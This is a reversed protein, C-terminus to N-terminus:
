TECLFASDRSFLMMKEDMRMQKEARLQRRAMAMDGRFRRAGEEQFQQMLDGCGGGGGPAICEREM